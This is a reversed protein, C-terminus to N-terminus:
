RIKVASKKRIQFYRELHPYETMYEPLMQIQLSRKANEVISPINKEKGERFHEKILNEEM